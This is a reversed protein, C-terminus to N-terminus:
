GIWYTHNLNDIEQQTLNPYRQQIFNRIAADRMANQEEERSQKGWAKLRLYAFILFASALGILLEEM